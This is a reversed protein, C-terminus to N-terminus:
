KQKTKETLASSRVGRTSQTRQQQLMFDSVLKRRPKAQTQDFMALRTKVFGHQDIPLRSRNQKKTKDFLPLKSRVIGDCVQLNQQQHNGPYRSTLRARTKNEAVKKILSEIKQSRAIEPSSRKEETQSGGKKNTVACKKEFYEVIERIDKEYKENKICDFKYNRLPFGSSIDDLGSSLDDLSDTFVSSTRKHSLFASAARLDEELDSVTLLSSAISRSSLLGEESMWDTASSSYFGSEWSGARRIPFDIPTLGSWTGIVSDDQSLHYPRSRVHEPILPPLRPALMTSM